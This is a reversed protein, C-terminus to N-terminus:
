GQSPGGTLWLRLKAGSLDERVSWLYWKKVGPLKRWLFQFGGYYRRGHTQLTKWVETWPEPRVPAPKEAHRAIVQFSDRRFARVRVVEFGAKELALCLSRPSFHFNHALSYVRRPSVKPRLINPTEVLLTGGPRLLTAVKRLSAVPDFLHEILHAMVIVDFRAGAFDHRDFDGVLVPTGWRETIYKAAGEDMEFGSARVGRDKLLSLVAGDGAGIELAEAGKALYPDLLDLIRRARALSKRHAAELSQEASRSRHVARVGEGQARKDEDSLVPNNFVLACGRCVVVRRPREVIAAHDESGCIPCPRLTPVSDEPASFTRSRDQLTLADM